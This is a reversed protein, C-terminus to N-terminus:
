GGIRIDLGMRRGLAAAESMDEPTLTKLHELTYPQGLKAYKARGLQHFPLLVYTTVGLALALHFISRLTPLDDNYGPIVATRLTVNAGDDMLKGINSTVLDLDAGTERLLVDRDSHKLDIYFYDVYPLVSELVKYSLAATTEVCTTLGAQKAQSLLVEVGQQCFPEGGSLTLGGGTARYYDADKMVVALIEESSMIESSLSYAGGPCVPVCRGCSICRSRDVHLRGERLSLAQQPCHPVCNGCAVCRRGDHLLVPRFPQTEPNCCWACHLPCGQFFVVTRLGPGDHYAGREISTVFFKPNDM